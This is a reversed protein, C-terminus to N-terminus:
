VATARDMRSLKKLLWSYRWNLNKKFIPILRTYYPMSIIKFNNSTIITSVIKNALRRPDVDPAFIMSPTTVNEFMTTNIKGPLVLLTEVKNDRQFPFFNKGIRMEIQKGISNHFSILGGKSAGYATVGTPTILGLISAINVVCGRRQNLIDPLFYKVLLIPAILNIDIIKQLQEDPTNALREIYVIGANNIIINISNHYTEVIKKLKKIESEQSVDIKYYYLKGDEASNLLNPPPATIDVIIIILNELLLRKVIELGLGNSGGTVLVTDNKKIQM